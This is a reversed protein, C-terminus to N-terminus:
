QCGREWELKPVIDKSSLGSVGVGGMLRASTDADNFDSFSPAGPGSESFFASKDAIPAARKAILNM